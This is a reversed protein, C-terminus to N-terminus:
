GQLYEEQSDVLSVRDLEAGMRQLERWQQESAAHDEASDPQRLALWRDFTTPLLLRVELQPASALLASLGDRGPISAADLIDHRNPECRISLLRLSPALHLHPLPANIGWAKELALSQLQELASFAARYEDADPAPGVRIFFLEVLELHRLQRMAPASCLAVCNGASIFLRHLSLKHLSALGGIAALLPPEIKAFAARRLTFDTLSAAPLPLLRATGVWGFPVTMDLTHLRPLCAILVMTDLTLLGAVHIDLRMTQLRTLNPHQLLQPLDAASCELAKVLELGVLHPVAAVCDLSELGICHLHVPAFHVLSACVRQVDAASRVTVFFPPASRWAFPDSAAHLLQRSCRAAKLKNDTDLFQLVLQLEVM